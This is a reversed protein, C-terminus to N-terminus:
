RISRRDERRGPRVPKRFTPETAALSNRRSRACTPASSRVTNRPNTRDVSEDTIEADHFNVAADILFGSWVRNYVGSYNNGGQLRKRDRSNAVTPDISGTREFPDNLFTFSILDNSTPTWTGKAFGQKQITSPKRLLLHTDQAAVDETRKTYRWSGFGWVKDRIAPGGITFATDHSSFTVGPNHDNAAV